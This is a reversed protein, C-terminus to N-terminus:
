VQGLEALLEEVTQWLDQVRGREEATTVVDPPLTDALDALAQRAKRQTEFTSSPHHEVLALLELSHQSKGIQALLRAVGVFVDLAVPALDHKTALGLAHRFHQRAELHHAESSTVLVYGLRGLTVAMDSEHGLQQLIALADRQLQDSRHLDGRDHALCGLGSTCRALWLQSNAAKFAELAQLYLQEARRDDGQLRFATGLVYHATDVDPLGAENFCAVSEHLAELAHDIKGQALAVQGRRRLAFGLRLSDGLTRSIAIAEEIYQRAQVYKGRVLAIDGLQDNVAGQISKIEDQQSVTLARKYFREAEALNGLSNLAFHGLFTLNWGEGWRDGIESFLALSEEFYHRDEVNKSQGLHAAGLWMLAFAEKHRDPPKARRLLAVAQKLLARATQRGHVRVSLWGQGVLLFGALNLLHAPVDPEQPWDEVLDAEAIGAFTALARRFTVEGEHYKGELEYYLFLCEASKEIAQADQNAAARQWALRVNDIDATIETITEVERGGKIGAPREALFRAFFAAHRDRVEATQGAGMEAAYQRLLEHIEYRDRSPSYRLLSKNALGTLTRLSTGTVTRAAERTFGGRFISLQAYVDQEAESLRQWSADIVARMSRHRAPVNRVETELFDLSQEIEAVIDALSLMDVWSAALELALPMGDVAACITALHPIDDATVEFNPRIRGASQLFLEAAAYGTVSETAQREPVALGQLPYLQEEHLHLRERSTALIKVQPAIQLLDAIFEVGANQHSGDLLHEFNDFILLTQKRRFYDFLQQQPSRDDGQFPYGVAEAVASIIAESDSLPTLSVFYVGNAFPSQSLQGEAKLQREAVVLALRTKGMGGPGVITLLRVAPDAIFEDLVSLESERGIFRTTPEPPLNHAIQSPSPTSIQFTPPAVTINLRSGRTEEEQDFAGGRIRDYLANTEESLAVGFEADLTELCVQYQRLAAAQQGSQAYLQILQRHAPEHLPDLALRRRAHPLAAEFDGRTSHLRVLRELASALDQRLSETQFFQWEDFDPADPLTFGALFDDRYLSIAETLSSLCAPCVEDSPHDHNQATALLRRFHTVDLWLPNPRAAPDPVFRLSVTEPEVELWDGLPSKNLVWLASRLAARARRQDYEPWLLTALGDRQRSKEDSLALYSLLGISKRRRIDVPQDDVEIQPPGLLYLKLGSM